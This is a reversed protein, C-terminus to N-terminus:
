SKRSLYKRMATVIGFRGERRPFLHFHVHDVVQGADRGNNTGIHYATPVIRLHPHSLMEAGCKKSEEIPPTMLLSSYFDVIREPTEEYIEQVTRFTAPMADMFMELESGRINTINEVHRRPVVIAHGPVAPTISLISYAFENEFLILGQDRWAGYLNCFIDTM